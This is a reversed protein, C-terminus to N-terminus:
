GTVARAHLDGQAAPGRLVDEFEPPLPARVVFSLPGSALALEVRTELSHLFLRKHGTQQAFLRNAAFAGYTADGVIPLSRLVCQVRLQHSRGTRPELKLLSVLPQGRGRKVLTMQSECPTNGGGQTRVRGARKDVALRDRWLQVPVSPSGFVLANYVKRISKKRFAEKIELALAESEAALIVGSTGSDLRNLLWL